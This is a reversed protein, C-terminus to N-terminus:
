GVKAGRMVTRFEMFQIPVRRRRSGIRVMVVPKDSPRINRGFNYTVNELDSEWTVIDHGSLRYPLDPGTFKLRFLKPRPGGLKKDIEPGLLTGYLAVLGEINITVESRGSNAISLHLGGYDGDTVPIHAQATVKPGGARYAFFALIFSATSVVAAYAALASAVNWFGSKAQNQVVIGAATLTHTLM